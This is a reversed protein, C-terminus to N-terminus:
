ENGVEADVKRILAESVNLLQARVKASPKDGNTYVHENWARALSSASKTTEESRLIALMQEHEQNAQVLRSLKDDKEVTSKRMTVLEKQVAELKTQIGAHVQASVTEESENEGVLAALLASVPLSLPLII